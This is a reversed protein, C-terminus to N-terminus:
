VDGWWVPLAIEEFIMKKQLDAASLFLWVAAMGYSAILSIALDFNKLATEVSTKSFSNYWFLIWTNHFDDPKYNPIIQFNVFSDSFAACSLEYM